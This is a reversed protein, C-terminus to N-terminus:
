TIWFTFNALFHKEANKACMIKKKTLQMFRAILVYLACIKLYRAVINASKHFIQTTNILTLSIKRLTFRETVSLAQNERSDNGANQANMLNLTQTFM